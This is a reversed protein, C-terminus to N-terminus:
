QREVRKHIGLIRGEEEVVGVGPGGRSEGISNLGGHVDPEVGFSYVALALKAIRLM